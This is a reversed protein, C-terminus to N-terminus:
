AAVESVPRRHAGTRRGETPVQGKAPLILVGELILFILMLTLFVRWIEGQLRDSGKGREQHLQFSLGTFLQRAADPTISQLDNEPTPRNVAVFRGDTRYIGAHLRPDSDTQQDVRTWGSVDRQALESTDTIVASNVRKAGNALMRQIMPVLVAGDSLSSWVADTSTACFYVEGKGLARRALFPAGDAFSALVGGAGSISARRFVELERLPVGYGEQTRALPGELENWKTVPFTSEPKAVAVEGFALGAFSQTSASEPFFMLSGGSRVFQDLLPPATAPLITSHWLILATNTLPVAAFEEPPIIKAWEGAPKDLNSAALQLARASERHSTVILAGPSRELDFAFFLKNDAVNGDAGMEILGWGPENAAPLSFNNRWRLSEGTLNLEVQSSAGSLNWLLTVSGEAARNQELDIAMALQRQSGQSRRVAEVLSISANRQAADDFALLRFRVKQPLAAFQAVLREWQTDNPLWNSEQLDSAIWIEAAGSRSDKLYSYARQLLGPIDAKSETAGCFVAQELAAATPLEQAKQTASDVLVLRSSHGFAGLAEKWLRIAQERRSLGGSGIQAEMSASRDLALVIVEPAPSLAWGLWGGALPRSLFFVLAIVALVRLLLVLLQRLKAQNISSQNAARLFRMAAWPQPRHRLRNLLHIIVPILLLPLGWLIFPQLFTM